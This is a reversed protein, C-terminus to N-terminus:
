QQERVNIFGPWPFKSKQVLVKWTSCAPCILLATPFHKVELWRKIKGNSLALPGKRSHEQPCEVNSNM